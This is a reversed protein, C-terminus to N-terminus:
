GLGMVPNQADVLVLYDEVYCDQTITDVAHTDRQEGTRVNIVVIPGSAASIECVCRTEHHGRLSTLLSGLSCFHHLTRSFVPLPAANWVDTLDSTREARLKLAHEDVCLILMGLYPM